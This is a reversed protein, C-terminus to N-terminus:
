TEVEGSRRNAVWRPISHLLHGFDRFLSGWDVVATYRPDPDPSLFFTGDKHAKWEAHAQRIMKEIREQAFSILFRKAPESVEYQFHDFLLVRWAM